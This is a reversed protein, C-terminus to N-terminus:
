SDQPTPVFEFTSEVTTNNQPIITVDELSKCTKCESSTPHVYNEGMTINILDMTTVFTADKSVAYDLFDQLAELFEGSGSVSTSLSIVVPENNTQAEDVKDVLLDYWQSSSIGSEKALRDDLTVKKGDVDVTSVPVAIVNHNEIEYPWVDDEHGPAFLVGAV